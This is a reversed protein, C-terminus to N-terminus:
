NNKPFEITAKALLVQCERLLGFLRGLIVKAIIRPLYCSWVDRIQIEYVLARFHNMVEKNRREELGNAQSKVPKKNYTKMTFLNGTPLSLNEKRLLRFFLNGVRNKRGNNGM